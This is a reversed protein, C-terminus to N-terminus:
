RFSVTFPPLPGSRLRGGIVTLGAASFSGNFGKVVNGDVKVTGLVVNNGGLDITAGREFNWVTGTDVITPRPIAISVADIFVMSSSTAGSLPVVENADDTEIRLRHTGATLTMRGSARTFSLSNGDRPPVVLVSTGDISATITLLYGKGGDDSRNRSAYEFALEYEGAQHVTVDTEIATTPRLYVTHSGNSTWPQTPSMSSKNGQWGSPNSVNVTETMFWNSITADRTFDGAVPNFKADEEFSANRITAAPGRFALTAGNAVNVINSEFVNAALALTGAEVTAAMTPALNGVTLTGTGKKTLEAVDTTISDLREIRVRDVFFCDYGWTTDICDGTIFKFEYTKGAELSVFGTEYREYPHNSGVASMSRLVIEDATGHNLYLAFELEGNRDYEPRCAYDFVIRYEGDSEVTFNQYVAGGGSRVVAFRSGDCTKYGPASGVITSNTNFIKSENTRGNQVTGIAFSWGGDEEFRYNSFASAIETVNTTTRAPDIALPVGLMVDKGDTDFECGDPGVVLRSQPDSAHMYPVLVDTGAKLSCGNLVLDVGNRLDYESATFPESGNAIQIRGGETASTLTVIRRTVDNSFSPREVTLTVTQNSVGLVGGNGIVVDNTITMTDRAYFPANLTVPGSGLGDPNALYVPGALFKCGGKFTNNTSDIWLNNTGKHTFGGDVAGGLDPRSAISQNIRVDTVGAKNTTSFGGAGVYVNPIEGLIVNNNASRLTAGDLVLTATSSGSTSKHIRVANITSNSVVLTGADVYLRLFNMDRSVVLTGDGRKYFVGRDTAGAVPVDVHATVGNAVTAIQNQTTPASGYAYPTAIAGEGSFRYGDATVQFGNVIVDAPIQISKQTSEGFVATNTPTWTRGGDWNAATVSWEGSVPTSAWNQTEAFSVDAALFGCALIGIRSIITNYRAKM